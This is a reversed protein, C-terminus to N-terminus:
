VLNYIHCKNKTAPNLIKSGTRRLFGESVLENFARTVFGGREHGETQSRMVNRVDKASVEGNDLALDRVRTKIRSVVQLKSLM